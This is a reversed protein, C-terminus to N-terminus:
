ILGKLSDGSIKAENIKEKLRNTLPAIKKMKAANQQSKVTIPFLCTRMLVGFLVISTYWPLGFSVHFFEIIQQTWGIPTFNSALGLSQLTPEGIANMIVSEDM